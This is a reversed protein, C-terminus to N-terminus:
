IQIIMNKKYPGPVLSPIEALVVALVVVAVVLLLLLLWWDM